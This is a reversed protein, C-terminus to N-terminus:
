GTDGDPAIPGRPRRDFVGSRDAAVMAAVELACGSNGKYLGPFGEDVALRIRAESNLLRADSANSNSFDTKRPEVLLGVGHGDPLGLELVAVDFELSTTQRRTGDLSGARVVV